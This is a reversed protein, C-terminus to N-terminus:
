GGNSVLYGPAPWASKRLSNLYDSGFTRGAVASGGPVSGHGPGQGPGGDRGGGKGM